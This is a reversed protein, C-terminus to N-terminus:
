IKNRKKFYWHIMTCASKIALSFTTINLHNNYRKAIERLNLGDFFYLRFVTAEFKFPPDIREYHNLAEELSDRKILKLQKCRTLEQKWLEDSDPDKSEQEPVFDVLQHKNKRFNIHWNSTTSKIQRQLISVFFYKFYKNNWSEITKEPHEFLYLWLENKFEMRESKKPLFKRLMEEFFSDAETFTFIKHVTDATLFM